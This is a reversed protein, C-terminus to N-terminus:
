GRVEKVEIGHLYRVLHRKLTYVPLVRGKVDEVVLEGDKLYRFDAIFFRARARKGDLVVAPALLYKPQRELETIEGRQAMAKLQLWRRAEAGSPFTIGDVVTKKAASHAKGRM